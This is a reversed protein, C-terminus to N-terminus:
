HYQSPAFLGRLIGGEHQGTVSNTDLAARAAAVSALLLAPLNVSNKAAYDVVLEANRVLDDLQPNPM